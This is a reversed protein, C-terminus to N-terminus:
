QCFTIKYSYSVYLIISHCARKKQLNYVHFNFQQNSISLHLSSNKLQNQFRIMYCTCLKSVNAIPLYSTINKLKTTCYM